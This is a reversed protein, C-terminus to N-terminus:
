ATPDYPAEILYRHQKRVIQNKDLGDAGVLSFNAPECVYTETVGEIVTIITYSHQSLADRLATANAAVAAWSAGKVKVTIALTAAEIVEGVSRHAHQYRGEVTYRRWTRGSPAVTVITYKTGDNLELPTPSTSVQVSIDLTTM